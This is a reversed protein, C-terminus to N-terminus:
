SEDILIKSFINKNASPVDIPLKIFTTIALNGNFKDIM